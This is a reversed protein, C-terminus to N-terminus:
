QQQLGGIGLLKLAQVGMTGFQKDLGAQSVGVTRIATSTKVTQRKQLLSQAQAFGQSRLKCWNKKNIWEIMAIQGQLVAQRIWWLVLDVVKSTSSKTTILMQLTKHTRAIVDKIHIMFDQHTPTYDAGQAGMIGQQVAQSGQQLFTSFSLVVFANLILKKTRSLDTVRTKLM